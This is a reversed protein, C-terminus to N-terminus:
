SIFYVKFRLNISFTDDESLVRKMYFPRRIYHSDNLNILPSDVNYNEDSDTDETLNETKDFSFQSIMTKPKM